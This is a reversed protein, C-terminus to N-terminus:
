GYRAKLEQQINKVVEIIRGNNMISGDNNIGVWNKKEIWRKTGKLAISRRIAYTRDEIGKSAAWRYIPKHRPMKGPGRGAIRYLANDANNSIIVQHQNPSLRRDSIDWGRILNGTAGVPTNRQFEDTADIWGDVFVESIEDMVESALQDKNITIKIGLNAM